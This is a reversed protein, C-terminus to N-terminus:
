YWIIFSYDIILLWYDNICSIFPSKEILSQMVDNCTQKRYNICLSRTLVVRFAFINELACLGNIAWSICVLVHMNM